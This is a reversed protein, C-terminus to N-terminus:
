ALLSNSGVQKGLTENQLFCASGECVGSILVSGADVNSHM